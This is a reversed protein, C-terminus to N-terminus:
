IIPLTSFTEYVNAGLVKGKELNIHNNILMTIFTEPLLTDDFGNATLSNILPIIKALAVQKTHNIKDLNDDDIRINRPVLSFIQEVHVPKKANPLSGIGSLKIEDLVRSGTNKRNFDDDDLVNDNSLHDNGESSSKEQGFPDGIEAALAKLAMTFGCNANIVCLTITDETEIMDMTECVLSELLKNSEPCNELQEKTSLIYECMKLCPNLGVNNNMSMQINWFIHDIDALSLFRNLPIDKLINRVDEKVREILADLGGCHMYRHLISLYRQKLQENVKESCNGNESVDRYLYGGLLNLQIRLMATVISSSYIIITLRTVSLVKIEEWLDLKNDPNSRLKLILQKVDLKKNILELMEANIAIIMQNCTRETSEFHQVRRAKEMFDRMQRSQNSLIRRRLYRYLLISGGITLTTLMVRQRNRALIDRIRNVVIM